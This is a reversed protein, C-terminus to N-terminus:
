ECSWVNHTADQKVCSCISTTTATVVTCKTGEDSYCTDGFASQTDGPCDKCSAACSWTGGNCTCVNGCVNTCSASPTACSKGVVAPEACCSSTCSWLGEVCGCSLECSAADVTECSASEPACAGNAACGGPAGGAGASGGAGATGLTCSWANALNVSVCVCRKVGDGQLYNCETGVDSMCADSDAPAQEPAPCDLCPGNPCQWTGATCLCTAGCASNCRAGEAICSLGAVASSTCCSSGCSWAGEVCSCSLKCGAADTDECSLAGGGCPMAPACGSQGAAGAGGGVGGAGATGAVGGGGATGAAGGAGSAGGSGGQGQVPAGSSAGISFPEGACATTLTAFALFRTVHAVAVSRQSRMADVQCEAPARCGIQQRFEAGRSEQRRHLFCVRFACAQGVGRGSPM